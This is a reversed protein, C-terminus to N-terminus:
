DAEDQPGHVEKDVPTVTVVVSPQGNGVRTEQHPLCHEGDEEVGARQDEPWEIGKFFLQAPLGRPGTTYAATTLFSVQETCRPHLNSQPCRSM